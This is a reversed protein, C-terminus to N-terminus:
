KGPTKPLYADKPWRRHIWLWQEPTARIWGELVRNMDTLITRTDADKQGTRAIKLPPFATLRFRCGPLREIRFPYLPCDFKLALHAIAAGTMADRGLFPIALGENLKQDVLMGVVGNRRLVSIIERTGAANKEIQSVCGRSRAHRLLSDVGPNNPKRYVINIALGTKDRIAPLEWNAMHASFLIAPKGSDRAAEFHEAGIIEVQPSTDHLHPYEAVLRGINDWMGLLILEKEAATKQPFAFDLNQRAIRSIGALPGLRSLIKGGLASAARLPLLGFFGYLAYALATELVHSCRRLFFLNGANKTDGPRKGSQAKMHSASYRKGM